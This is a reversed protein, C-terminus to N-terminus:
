SGVSPQGGQDDSLNALEDGFNGLAAGDQQDLLLGRDGEIDRPADLHHAVAADDALAYRLRQAVRRIHTHPLFPQLNLLANRIM